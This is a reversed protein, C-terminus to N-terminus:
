LVFGPLPEKARKPLVVRELTRLHEKADKILDGWNIYFNTPPPAPPCGHGIGRVHDSAVQQARLPCTRKNHGEVRCFFCQM